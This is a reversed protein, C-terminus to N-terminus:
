VHCLPLQDKKPGTERAIHRLPASNSTMIGAFRFGLGRKTEPDYRIQENQPLNIPSLIPQGEVTDGLAQVLFMARPWSEDNM